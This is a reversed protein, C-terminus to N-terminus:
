DDKADDLKTFSVKVQQSVNATSLDRNLRNASHVVQLTKAIEGLKIDEIGESLKRNISKLAHLETAEYLTNKGAIFADVNQLEPFARKFRRLLSKIAPVSTNLQEAVQKQSYGRGIMITALSAKAAYSEKKQANLEARMLGTKTKRGLKNIKM